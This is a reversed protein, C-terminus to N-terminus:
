KSQKLQIAGDYKAAAIHRTMRECCISWSREDIFCHGCTTPQFNCHGFGNSPTSHLRGNRHRFKRLFLCRRGPLYSSGATAEPLCCISSMYGTRNLIASRLSWRTQRTALRGASAVSTAGAKSGKRLFPLAAVLEIDPLAVPPPWSSATSLAGCMHIHIPAGNRVHIYNRREVGAMPHPAGLTPRSAPSYAVVSMIESTMTIPRKHSPQGGPDYPPIYLRWPPGRNSPYMGHRDYPPVVGGHLKATRLGTVSKIPPDPHGGPLFAELEKVPGECWIVEASDGKAYQRARAGGRWWPIPAHSQPPPCISRILRSAGLSCM